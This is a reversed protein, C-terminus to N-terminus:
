AAGKSQYFSEWLHKIASPKGNDRTFKGSVANGIRPGSLCMLVDNM